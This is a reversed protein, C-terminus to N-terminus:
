SSVSYCVYVCQGGAGANLDGPVKEFGYPPFIDPNDGGIVSIDKIASINDYPASRFCLYVFRGNAGKNLDQPLKTYGPPTPENDYIIKIDTICNKNYGVSRYSENHYCLYIFDGGAGANLDYSIKTYGTSPQIDSQTTTIVKIDNVYDPYRQQNVSQTPAWVKDYYGKLFLSQEQTKCLRWIGTIPNASVFNIFDPSEGVSAKWSDFGEKGEFASLAKVGDGGVAHHNIESFYSFNNMSQQYKLKDEANLQGILGKYSAQAVVDISYSRDVTQKNTASALVARGGMVIGTLIHSGYTNFFEEAAANTLPMNDLYTLFDDRLYQRLDTTVALRLSWLSITQQTRTFENKSQALSQASYEVSLSGSFFNYGGSISGTNALNSQFKDISSGSSNTYYSTDAQQADVPTPITYKSNFSVQKTGAKSWDFIQVTISDASAYELFPNYAAGIAEVGPLVNDSVNMEMRLLKIAQNKRFKTNLSNIM